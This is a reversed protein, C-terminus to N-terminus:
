FRMAAVMRRADPLDDPRAELVDAGTEVADAIARSLVDESRPRRQDHLVLTGSDEGFEGWLPESPDLLLTGVRANALARLIAGANTEVGDAHLAGLVRARAREESADLNPTVLPLAGQRLAEADLMKPNGTLGRDLVGPMSSTSAFRAIHQEDAAVVIPGADRGLADALGRDIAHYFKEREETEEADSASGHGHYFAEGRQRGATEASHFQISKQEYDHGVADALSGPIESAMLESASERTCRILRTDNESLALVYFVAPDAVDPLLPRTAFRTGVTVCGAPSHELRHIEAGGERAYVALGETQHQWFSENDVLPEIEALADEVGVLDTGAAAALERAQAIANKFRIRNQNVDVGRREAPICISVLAEGRTEALREFTDRTLPM